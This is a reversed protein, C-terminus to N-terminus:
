AAGFLLTLAGREDFYFTVTGFGETGYVSIANGTVDLEYEINARSLMAKIQEVDTPTEPYSM